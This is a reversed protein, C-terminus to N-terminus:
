LPPDLLTHIEESGNQIPVYCVMGLMVLFIFFGVCILMLRQFVGGDFLNLGVKLVEGIYLLHGL